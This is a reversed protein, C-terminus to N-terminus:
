AAGCIRRVEEVDKKMQEILTAADPFAVVTRVFGLISVRVPTTDAVSLDPTDLIYVELQDAINGFTVAPGYYLAGSYKKGDITVQSAYIGREAEQFSPPIHMNVTPFGLTKGRGFGKVTTSNFQQM